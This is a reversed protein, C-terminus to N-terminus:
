NSLLNELPSNKQKRCGVNINHSYYLILPMIIQHTFFTILANPLNNPIGIYIGGALVFSSPFDAINLALLKSKGLYKKSFKYLPAGVYKCYAPIPYLRHDEM